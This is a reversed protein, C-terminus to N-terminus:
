CTCRRDSAGLVAVMYFGNIEAVILFEDDNNRAERTLSETDLRIRLPKRTLRCMRSTERGQRDGLRRTRECVGWVCIWGDDGGGDGDNVSKRESRILSASDKSYAVVIGVPPV